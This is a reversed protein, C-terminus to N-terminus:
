KNENTPIAPVTLHNVKAFSEFGQNLMQIIREKPYYNDNVHTLLQNYKEELQEYKRKQNQYREELSRRVEQVGMENFETRGMMIEEAEKLKGNTTSELEKIHSTLETIITPNLNNTIPILSPTNVPSPEQKYVKSEQCIKSFDLGANKCFISVETDEPKVTKRRVKDRCSICKKCISKNGRFFNDEDQDKCTKCKCTKM